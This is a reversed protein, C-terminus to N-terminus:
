AAPQVGDRCRALFDIMARQNFSGESAANKQFGMDAVRSMAAISRWDLEKLLPRSRKGDVLM